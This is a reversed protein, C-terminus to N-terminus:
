RKGMVQTNLVTIQAPTKTIPQSSQLIDDFAMAKVNELRTTVQNESEEVPLENEEPDEPYFDKDDKYGDGDYDSDSTAGLMDRILRLHSNNEDLSQIMLGRQAEARANAQNLGTAITGLNITAGRIQHFTSELRNSMWVKYADATMIGQGYIEPVELLVPNSEVGNPYGFAVLDSSTLRFKYTYNGAEFIDFQQNGTWSSITQSPGTEFQTSGPRKFYWTLVHPVANLRSQLFGDVRYTLYGVSGGIDDYHATCTLTLDRQSTPALSSVPDSWHSAFGGNFVERVYFCGDTTTPVYLTYYEQDDERTTVRYQHRYGDPTIILCEIYLPKRQPNPHTIFLSCEASTQSTQFNHTAVRDRLVKTLTPASSSGLRLDTSGTTPHNVTIRDIGDCQYGAPDSGSAGTGGGGTEGGGTGGGGTGGGGTGGGGTDGGGTGGGGTGGGGTDGGGTGGGGTDGGGTDGGGTDGGGTDGGGSMSGLYTDIRAIYNNQSTIEEELAMKMANANALRQTNTTAAWNQHAETAKLQYLEIDARLAEVGAIHAIAAVRESQASATTGSALEQATKTPRTPVDVSWSPMSYMELVKFGSLNVQGSPGECFLQITINCPGTVNIPAPLIWNGYGGGIQNGDRYVLTQLPDYGAGIVSVTPGSLLYNGSPIDAEIWVFSGFFSIQSGAITTFTDQDQWQNGVAQHPAFAIKEGYSYYYYRFTGSQNAAFDGPYEVPNLVKTRWDQAFVSSGIVLVCLTSLATRWICALVGSCLTVFTIHM